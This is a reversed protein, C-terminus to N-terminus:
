RARRRRRRAVMLALAAAAGMLWPKSPRRSGLSCGTGEKEDSSESAGTSVKAAGAFTTQSVTGPASGTPDFLLGGGGSCTLTVDPRLEIEKAIVRGGYTHSDGDGLVARASSALLTGSFNSELYLAPQGYYAVFTSAPAGTTGVFAGRYVMSSKVFLRTGPVVVISAQPEVDLNEVLYDGASLTLKSRSYAIIQRHSGPAASGIADPALVVDSAPLMTPFSLPPNQVGGLSLAVHQQIPGTVTTQNQRTVVGSTKIFGHVNGRDRVSVNAVSTIDGIHSQVGVETLGNGANVISGYATPGSMVKARDAVLFSGGATTGSVVYVTQQTTTVSGGATISWRVVHTGPVLSIVGSAPITRPPNLAAGNTSIVQGTVSPSEACSGQLSPPALTVNQAAGTGCVAATVAPLTTPVPKCTTIAAGDTNCITPGFAIGLQHHGTPATSSVTMDFTVTGSGTADDYTSRVNSTTIGPGVGVTVGESGIPCNHVDVTVDHVATGPVAQVVGTVSAHEQPCLNTSATGGCVTSPDNCSSVALVKEEVLSATIATARPLSNPGIAALVDTDRSMVPVATSADSSLEVVFRYGGPPLNSSSCTPNIFTTYVGDNAMEDGGSVGDDYMPVSIQTAGNVLKAAVSIGTEFTNQAIELRATAKVRQNAHATLTDLEIKGRVESNKYVAFMAVEPAAVSGGVVCPTGGKARMTWHGPIPNTVRRTRTLYATETAAPVVDTGVLNGNPDVVEFGYDAFRCLVSNSNTIFGPARAVKPEDIVTYETQEGMWVFEAQTTGPPLDFSREFVSPKLEQVFMAERYDRVRYALRSAAAQISVPTPSGPPVGPPVPGMGNGFDVMRLDGGCLQSIQDLLNFDADGFALSSIVMQKSGDAPTCAAIAANRVAEATDCGTVTPRGDTLLVMHGVADNTGSARVQATADNIAECLNTLGSAALPFEALEHPTTFAAYPISRTVASDFVSLGSKRGPPTRNFHALGASFAHEFATLDLATLRYNMSGSKDVVVVVDNVVQNAILSGTFECVPDTPLPAWPGIPNTFSENQPVVGPGQVFAPGPDYSMLDMWQKKAIDWQNGYNLANSSGVSTGSAFPGNIAHLTLHTNVDCWLDADRTGMVSTHWEPGNSCVRFGYFLPQASDLFYEDLLDYKSHGAEHAFVFASEPVSELPAKGLSDVCRERNVWKPDPVITFGDPCKAHICIGGSCLTHETQTDTVGDPFAGEAWTHAAQVVADNLAIVNGGTAVGDDRKWEVDYRMPADGYVFQVQYVYHRGNTIRWMREAFGQASGCYYTIDAQTLPPVSGDAVQPNLWVVYRHGSRTTDGNPGKGQVIIEPHDARAAGTVLILGLGCLGAAVRNMRRSKPTSANRTLPKPIRERFRIARDVPTVNANAINVDHPPLELCAPVLAPVPPPEPADPPAPALAPEPRAPPVLPAEAPALPAGVPPEAPECTMLSLGWLQVVLSPSGPM